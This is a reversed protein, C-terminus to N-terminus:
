TEKERITAMIIHIERTTGMTIDWTTLIPGVMKITTTRTIMSGTTVIINIYATITMNSTFLLRTKINLVLCKILQLVSLMSLKSRGIM